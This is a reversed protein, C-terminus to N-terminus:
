LYEQTSGGVGVVGVAAAWEGDDPITVGRGIGWLVHDVVDGVSSVGMLLAKSDYFLFVDSIMKVVNDIQVRQMAHLEVAHDIFFKALTNQLAVFAATNSGLCMSYVMRYSSEFQVIGPTRMVDQMMRLIADTNDVM